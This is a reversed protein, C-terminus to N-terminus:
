LESDKAEGLYDGYESESDQFLWEILTKFVGSIKNRLTGWM